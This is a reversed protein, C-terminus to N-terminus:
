KRAQEIMVKEEPLLQERAAIELYKKAKETEGDAALLVGYYAAINPIELQSTPLDELAKLGEKTKGQLHLSYAYTSAFVANTPVRSHVERALEHARATQLNLLLSLASLNNKAVLDNADVTALTSYLKHLGRSNGTALYLHKLSELAWRESPFRQVIVWLLEEREGAWGWAQAM